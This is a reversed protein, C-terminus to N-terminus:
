SCGTSGVGHSFNRELSLTELAIPKETVEEGAQHYQLEFVAMPGKSRLGQPCSKM